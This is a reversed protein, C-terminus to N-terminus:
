ARVPHSGQYSDSSSILGAVHTGHGFDDYPVTALGGDTFDYFATIRDGFRSPNIGSDIIAVGAGRGQPSLDTLGLTDLFGISALVSHRNPLPRPEQIPRWAASSWRTQYGAAFALVSPRRTKRSMAVITVGSV